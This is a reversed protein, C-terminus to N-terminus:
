PGRDRVPIAIADLSPVAGTQFDGVLTVRWRVYPYGDCDNVNKTWATAAQTLDIVTRGGAPDLAMAGQYEVLMSTGIPPPAGLLVAADYDSRVGFTRGISHPPAYSAGSPDSPGPTYFRSVAISKIRAITFATDQISRDPNPVFLTAAPVPTDVNFIGVIRRNPPPNPAYVLLPGPFYARVDQWTQGETASVDLLLAKGHLADWDFPTTLRPYEVFGTYDYLNQFAPVGTANVLAPTENGVNARQAVAYPGDYAVMPASEYSGSFTGSPETGENVSYGLRVILEAYNSTFTANRDPGWGVSVISGGAGLEAGSFALMVRRGLNTAPVVPGGGAANLAAGTLPDSSPFYLGARLAAVDLSAQTASRVYVRRSTVPNAVLSGLSWDAGTAATDRDIPGDFGEGLLATPAAGEGAGYFPGLAEAPSLGNGALDRLGPLVRVEFAFRRDGYGHVPDLRVSRGAGVLTANMLIPSGAIGAAQNYPDTSSFRVDFADAFGPGVGVATHITAPDIPEDFELQISARADVTGDPRRGPLFAHGVLRPPTSEEVWGNATVFRFVFTNLIPLGSRSRVMEGTPVGAPIRLEHETLADFGYPRALGTAYVTPDFLIRAGDVQFRGLSPESFNPGRRVRIFPEGVTAPDIPAEFTLEVWANRPVYAPNVAAIDQGDTGVFRVSVVAPAREVGGAGGGGGCRITSVSMAGLVVACCARRVPSRRGPSRRSHSVDM